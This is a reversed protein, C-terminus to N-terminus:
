NKKYLRTMKKREKADEFVDIKQVVENTVWSIIIMTKDKSRKM